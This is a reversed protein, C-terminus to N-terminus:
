KCVELRATKFARAVEVDRSCCSNCDRVLEPDEVITSLKECSSCRLSPTFGLDMCDAAAQALLLLLM